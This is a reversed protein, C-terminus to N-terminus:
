ATPKGGVYVKEELGAEAAKGAELVEKATLPQEPSTVAVTTLTEPDVYLVSVINADYRGGRWGTCDATLKEGRELLIQALGRAWNPESTAFIVPRGFGRCKILNSIVRQGHKVPDIEVEIFFVHANDWGRPCADGKVRSLPYAIIDPLKKAEYVVTGNERRQPAEEGMDIYCFHGDAWLMRAIIGILRAHEPGGGRAGKPVQAFFKELALPSLAYFRRRVNVVRVGDWRVAEESIRPEVVDRLLISRERLGRGLCLWCVAGGGRLFFPRYTIEDCVSCKYPTFSLKGGVPVNVVEYKYHRDRMQIYNRYALSNLANVVEAETLGYRLKVAAVLDEHMVAPIKGSAYIGSGAQSADEYLGYLHLLVLWSAADLGDNLPHPLDAVSPVGAYKTMNVEDGWRALSREIVKDVDQIGEGYDITKLVGCERRGGVIASAAFFYRPLKMVDSYSLAPRYFEELSRATDEGCSFCIIADCLSPISKAIEPTYQDLHQSALAVFVRYKRLSQLMDRISATVFRPAEDIYVYFPRRQSEPTDERSMGAVYVRALILSGLFNAIDSTIIGESLNVVIIRGEDMARRFDIKSKECDFIPAVIREQVLRYIKTLVAASADRPMTKFQSRWFSEVNRDASRALLMERYMEDAVVRYLNSLNRDGADLLLYIANLLIMDLRPGWHRSYIKELSDMFSRAVVDRDKPDEYELFNIKVVRGRKAATVPDIYIVDGWREPPIHSLFLRALDGHPDIVMCGEGSWVNQLALSLLFRSKGTGPFGFVAMHIREDQFIGRAEGGEDVGLVCVRRAQSAAGREASGSAGGVEEAESAARRRWLALALSASGLISFAAALGESLGLV